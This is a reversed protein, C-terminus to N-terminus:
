FRFRTVLDSLEGSMTALSATADQAETIAHATSRAADAVGTINASIEESSSAAASVNRNMEDTTASQEEVASAITTQYDNIRGIVEAIEAIAAVAADTGHQIAQVRRAIDETAKATEQALDKVEGAVVAFGKGADGARAAEITANLALLNTQEAISTITKVVQGIERSSEGLTAISRNTAEAVAVAQAAVRAAESAGTAIEAISAGMEESGAAVTQVNASVQEAAASVVGAQASTEEAGAAVQAAVASVQQATASVGSAAGDITGVLTRLNGVAADLARGTRGVEDATALGTTRTLDGDALAESVTQVRHLGDMIARATAWGLGLAALMGIVLAALVTTRNSAYAAETDKAAQEAEARESRVLEQLATSMPEILPKVEGERIATWTKVDGARSAPLLKTETLTTFSELLPRLDALAADQEATLHRTRYTDLLERVQTESDDIATEYTSKATDAALAHNAVDLRMQLTYRRLQSATDLGTVNETYMAQANDNSASLASIGLLGIVAAAVAAVAISALIKTRVGLDRLLSLGSRSPQQPTSPTPSM